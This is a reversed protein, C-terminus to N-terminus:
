YKKDCLKELMLLQMSNCELNFDEIGNIISYGKAVINYKDKYRIFFIQM